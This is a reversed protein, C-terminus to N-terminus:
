KKIEQLRIRCNMSKSGWNKTKQKLDSMSLNWIKRRMKSNLMVTIVITWTRMRDVFWDFFNEILIKEIDEDQQLVQNYTMQSARLCWSDCLYNREDDQENLDSLATKVFLLNKKFAETDDISVKM